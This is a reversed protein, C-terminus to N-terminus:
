RVPIRLMGTIIENAHNFNKIDLIIAKSTVKTGTLPVIKQHSDHIIGELEKLPCSFYVNLHLGVIMKINLEPFDQTKEGACINFKIVGRKIKDMPAVQAIMIFEKDINRKDILSRILGSLHTYHATGKFFESYKVEYECSLEKRYNFKIEKIYWRLKDKKIKEYAPYFNEHSSAECKRLASPPIGFQNKFSRTFSQQSKWKYLRAIEYPTLNTVRLLIYASTLRRLRIYEGLSLGIFNAFCEQLYRKSFGAYYSVKELTLDNDLNEDIWKILSEFFVKDNSLSM